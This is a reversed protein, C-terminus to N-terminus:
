EVGSSTIELKLHVASDASRCEGDYAENKLAIETPQNDIRCAPIVSNSTEHLMVSHWMQSMNQRSYVTLLWM